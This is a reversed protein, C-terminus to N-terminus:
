FRNTAFHYPPDWRSVGSITRGDALTIVRGDAQPSGDKAIWVDARIQSGPQLDNRKYGQAILSSPAPLEVTWSVVGGDARKVDILFIAHPNLWRVETVVGQIQVVNRIDYMAAPSHHAAMPMAALLLAFIMGPRMALDHCMQPAALRGRDGAKPAACSEAAVLREPDVRERDVPAEVATSMAFYRIAICARMPSM